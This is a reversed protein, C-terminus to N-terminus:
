NAPNPATLTVPQFIGINNFWTVGEMVLNYDDRYTAPPHNTNFVMQFLATEGPNIQTVPTAVWSNPDALKGDIGSPRTPSLWPDPGAATFFGSIRDQPRNTGLHVANSGTVPWAARGVNKLALRYTPTSGIPTLSTPTSLDQKVWALKYPPATVKVALWIGYDEPLWAVGDLVPRVYIQHLGVPLNPPVTLRMSFEAVEGPDVVTKAGNTVNADITSLRAPSLWAGTGSATVFPSSGDRPRDTGLRLNGGVPWSVQGTNRIRLTAQGETTSVGATLPASQSVYEYHYGPQLVRMPLYIGQDPLWTIGEAVLNFYEAFSGPNSPATFTFSFVGSEGPLIRTAPTVTGNSEYKGDIASARSANLWNESAPIDSAGQTAFASGRDNPRSSALRVPNAGTSEWTLEGVNKLVIKANLRQGPLLSQQRDTAGSFNAPDSNTTITQSVFQSRYSPPNVTLGICMPGEPLWMVGEVLPDFCEVYYGPQRNSVMNVTFTALGGAPTDADLAIRSPSVWGEAGAQYFSSARDRPSVTGLRMPTPGDKLWTNAGSNRMQFQVRLNGGHNMTGGSAVVASADYATRRDNVYQLPNHWGGTGAQYGNVWRAYTGIAAGYPGDHVSFHTHSGWNGNELSYDPGTYGILQGKAVPQGNSVARNNGLHGYLTVVKRGDNGTHEILILNGWRYSDPTRASYVVVGNAAAYVPVGADHCIDAGTHNGWGSVFRGFEYYEGDQPFCPLQWSDSIAANTPAPNSLAVLGATVVALLTM